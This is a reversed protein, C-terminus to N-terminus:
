ITTDKPKAQITIRCQTITVYQVAADLPGPPGHRELWQPSPGKCIERAGFCIVTEIQDSGNDITSLWDLVTPAKRGM